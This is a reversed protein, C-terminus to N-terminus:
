CTAAPTMSPTSRPRRMITSSRFSRTPRSARASRPRAACIPFGCCRMSASPSAARSGGACCRSPPTAGSISGGWRARSISRPPRNSRLGWCRCWTACRRCGQEGFGDARRTLWYSYVCDMQGIRAPKASVICSPRRFAQAGQRRTRDIMSFDLSACDALDILMEDHGNELMHFFASRRWNQAADGESTSGYEFTDAENTEIDNWRFGRGEFIPHLTDIFVM